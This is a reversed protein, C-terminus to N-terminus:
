KRSMHRLTNDQYARMGNTNNKRNVDKVACKHYDTLSVLNQSGVQSFAVKSIWAMLKHSVGNIWQLKSISVHRIAFM